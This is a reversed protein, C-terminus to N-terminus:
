WARYDRQRWWLTALWKIGAEVPRGAHLSRPEPQGQDDLNDFIVASGMRPEVQLNLLPWETQGGQEVPHLYACLTRWRQGAQPRHRQLAAPHLDDRHPRYEQGPAYHLVVLHEAQVLACGATAAMRAQVWRLVFDEELPDLSCDSSSRLPDRWTQPSHPDHVTSARLRPAAMQMLLRCEPESLLAPAVAVRPAASWQEVPVPQLGGRVREALTAVTPWEAEIPARAVDPLSVQESPVSGQPLLGAGLVADGFAAATAMARRDIRDPRSCALLWWVARRAQPLGLRAAELLDGAIREPDAPLLRGGLAVTAAMYFGAPHAAQQAQHLRAVAEELGKDPEFHLLYQALRQCAGGHGADAAQRLLPVARDFRGAQLAQEAQEAWVAASM